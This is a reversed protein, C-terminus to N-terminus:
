SSEGEQAFKSPPRSDGALAQRVARLLEEVTFPKPLFDCAGCQRSKRENERSCNGSTLVIPTRVGRRLTEAVFEFGDGGEMMLDCIILRYTHRTLRELATRINDVTDVSIGESGCVRAVSQLVILEDDIVLIEAPASM